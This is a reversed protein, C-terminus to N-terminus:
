FEPFFLPERRDVFKQLREKDAKDMKVFQVGFGAPADSHAVAVQRHWRVEAVVAIPEDDDPLRFELEITRGVPLLDYTALFLGGESINDTLGVYFNSESTMTVGVRVSVRQEERREIKIEDSEM